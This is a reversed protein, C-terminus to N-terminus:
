ALASLLCRMGGGVQVFLCTRLRVEEKVANELANRFEHKSLYGDGSKDAKKIHTGVTGTGGQSGFLAYVPIGDPAHEKWWSDGFNAEHLSAVFEGRRAAERQMETSLDHVKAAM